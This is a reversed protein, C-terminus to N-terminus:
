RPSVTELAPLEGGKEKFTKLKVLLDRVIADNARDVDLGQEYFYNNQGCLVCHAAHLM